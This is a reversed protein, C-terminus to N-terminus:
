DTASGDAIPGSPAILMFRQAILIAKLRDAVGLKRYLNQQHKSITRSSVALRRAIATTTHGESMLDLVVRERNTLNLSAAIHDATKNQAPTLRARHLELSRTHRDAARLLPEIRRAVDMEHNTFDIRARVPSTSVTRSASAVVTINMQQTAGILENMMSYGAMNRWTSLPVLDSNRVVDLANPGELHKTMPHHELLDQHMESGNPVAAAAWAPRILSFTGAINHGHTVDAVALVDAHLLPGLALDAYKEWWDQPKEATLAAHALELLGEYELRTLTSM